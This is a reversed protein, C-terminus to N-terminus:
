LSLSYKDLIDNLQYIAKDWTPFSKLKNKEVVNPILFKTGTKPDIIEDCQFHKLMEYHSPIDSVITKKALILGELAAISSNEIQSASIYYEAGSILKILREREQIDYVAVENNNSLRKSLDSKNGVIIFRNLRPEDQKLLNYIDYALELRKYKYSGITISYLDKCEQPKSISSLESHNFGNPLISRFISLNRSEARAKILNLTFESEASIIDAYELSRLIKNRLVQMELKKLFPLNIGKTTLSLANSVHFWNIKAVDFFIPLGYSFYIEPTKAKRLIKKLYYGDKLLRLIKNPQVTFFINNKSYQQLFQESKKNIIFTAGGNTDFYKATEILRRLGGGSFSSAFNFLWTRKQQTM